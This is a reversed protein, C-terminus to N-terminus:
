EPTVKWEDLYKQLTPKKESTWTAVAKMLSNQISAYPQRKFNKLAYHLRKSAVPSSKFHAAIELYTALRDRSELRAPSIELLKPHRKVLELVYKQPFDRDITELFVPGAFKLKFSSFVTLLYLASTRGTATKANSWLQKLRNKFDQPAQPPPSQFYNRSKLFEVYVPILKPDREELLGLMVVRMPIRRGPLSSLYRLNQYRIVPHPDKVASRLYRRPVTRRFHYASYNLAGYKESELATTQWVMPDLNFSYYFYEPLYNLSILETILHLTPMDSIQNVVGSDNPNWQSIQGQKIHNYRHQVKLEDIAQNIELQCYASHRELLFQRYKDYTDFDTDLLDAFCRFSVALFVILKITINTKLM